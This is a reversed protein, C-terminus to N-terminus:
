TGALRAVIPAVSEIDSRLNVYSIGFRERREVLLDVCRDVSGALVAPSTAFADPNARLHEVLPSRSPAAGDVETLYVTFQIEVDNFARGAVSLQKRVQLMKEEFRAASLNEAATSDLAGANLRPHIAIIDAEQAALRLIRPGGGGVLLPPHPRQVPKPLGDLNRITYHRGGFRAQM